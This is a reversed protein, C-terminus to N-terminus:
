GVLTSAVYLRPDAWRPAHEEGRRASARMRALASQLRAQLADRSVPKLLLDHVGLRVAELVGRSDRTLMIIAPGPSPVTGPSRLARVFAAGDVDPMNWDLLVIDPRISRVAALGSAGDSAEHIRTCGLALLLARM